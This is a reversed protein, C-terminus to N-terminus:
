KAKKSTGDGDSKGEKEREESKTTESRLRASLKQRARTLAVRVAVESFGLERSIEADSAGDVYRLWLTKFEKPTLMKRAVRWLNEREDARAVREDPSAVDFETGSPRRPTTKTAFVANSEADSTKGAANEDFSAVDLRRRRTSDVLTRYAVRHLWGSFFAGRRLSELSAFAKVLTEQTLDEATELSRTRLRLFRLLRPRYRRVIEDFAAREGTQFREVLREDSENKMM